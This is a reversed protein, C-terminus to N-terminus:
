AITLGAFSFFQKKEEELASDLLLNVGLKKNENKLAFGGFRIKKDVRVQVEVEFVEKVIKKFNEADASKVFVITGEDAFIDKFSVLKEKENKIYEPSSVYEQLKFELEAFTKQTVYDRQAVLNKKKVAECELIEQMKTKEAEAEAQRIKLNTEVELLEKQKKIESEALKQAGLVLKEAKKNAIDDVIKKINKIKEDNATTIM